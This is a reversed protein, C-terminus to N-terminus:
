RDPYTQIWVETLSILPSSAGGQHATAIGLTMTTVPRRSDITIVQQQPDDLLDASQCSGGDFALGIRAPRSQTPRLPNAAALGPAIVVRRVQAAPFTFVVTATGPAAGCDAAGTPAWAM